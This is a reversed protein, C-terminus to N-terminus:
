RGETGFGPTEPLQDHEAKWQGGRPEPQEGAQGRREPAQGLVRHRAAADAFPHAGAVPDVQHGIIAGREAHAEVAGPRRGLLQVPAPRHERAEVPARPRAVRPDICQWRRREVRRRLGADGVRDRELRGVAAVHEREFRRGIPRGGQLQTALGAQHRLIREAAEGLEAQPGRRGRRELGPQGGAGSRAIESQRRAEVRPRQRSRRLPPLLRRLGAGVDLPHQAPEVRLM